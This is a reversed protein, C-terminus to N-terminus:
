QIRQSHRYPLGELLIVLFVNTVGAGSFVDENFLVQGGRVRHVSYESHAHLGPRVGCVPDCIYRRAHHIQKRLPMWHYLLSERGKVMDCYLYRKPHIPGSLSTGSLSLLHLM